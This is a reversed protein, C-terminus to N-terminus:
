GVAESTSQDIRSCFLREGASTYRLRSPGPWGIFFPHLVSDRLPISPKPIKVPRLPNKDNRNGNCGKDAEQGVQLTHSPMNEVAHNRGGSRAAAAENAIGQEPTRQAPWQPRDPVKCRAKYTEKEGDGPPQEKACQRTQRNIPKHAPGAGGVRFRAPGSPSKGRSQVRSGPSDSFQTM